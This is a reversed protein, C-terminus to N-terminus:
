TNVHGFYSHCGNVRRLHSDDQVQISLLRIDVEDSHGKYLPRQNLELYVTRTKNVSYKTPMEMHIYLPVNQLVSLVEHRSTHGIDTSGDMLIHDTFAM